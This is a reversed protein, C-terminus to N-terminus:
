CVLPGLDGWAKEEETFPWRVPEPPPTPPRLRPLLQNMHAQSCPCITKLDLFLMRMKQFSNLHTYLDMCIGLLNMCDSYQVIMQTTAMGPATVVSEGLQQCLAGLRGELLPFPEQPPLLLLNQAMPRHCTRM